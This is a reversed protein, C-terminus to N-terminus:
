IEGWSRLCARLVSEFFARVDEFVAVIDPDLGCEQALASFSTQWDEPPASLSAPLAHTERRAFTLHLADAVRARDLRGDGILLALDVLDKVRSNQSSRPM